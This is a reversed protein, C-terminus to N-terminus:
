SEGRAKALAARARALAADIRDGDPSRTIPRYSAAVALANEAATLVDLLDPAAAVLRANALRTRPHGTFEGVVLHDNERGDTYVAFDDAISGRFHIVRWPGPTHKM